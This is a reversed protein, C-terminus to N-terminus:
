PMPGRATSQKEVFARLKEVADEALNEFYLGIKISKQDGHGEPQIWVAAGILRDPLEPANSIQLRCYRTEQMLLHRTEANFPVVILAGKESIDLIRAESPRPQFTLEPIIVSFRVDLEVSIRSHSRKSAETM